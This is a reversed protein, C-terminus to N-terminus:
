RSKQLPDARGNLPGSRIAARTPWQQLPSFDVRWVDIEYLHGSQDLNLTASVLVGDSDDFECEAAQSGFRRQESVPGITLSGMGGDEMSTVRIADLDAAVGAAAVLHEVLPIEHPELPRM